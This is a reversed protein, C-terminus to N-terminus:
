ASPESEQVDFSFHEHSQTMSCCLCPTPTVFRQPLAVTIREEATYVKWDDSVGDRPEFAQDILEQPVVDKDESRHGHLSVRDVDIM